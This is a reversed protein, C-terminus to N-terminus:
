DDPAGQFQLAEAVRLRWPPGSSRGEQSVVWLVGAPAHGRRDNRPSRAPGRRAAWRPRPACLGIRLPQRDPSASSRVSKQARTEYASLRTATRKADTMDGWSIGSPPRAATANLPAEDCLAESGSGVCCRVPVRRLGSLPRGPLDAIALHAVQGCATSLGVFGAASDTSVRHIGTALGPASGNHVIGRASSAAEKTEAIAGSRLPAGPRPGRCTSRPASAEFPM